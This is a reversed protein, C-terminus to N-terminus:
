KSSIFRSSRAAPLLGQSLLMGTSLPNTSPAPLQHLLQDPGQGGGATFLEGANRPYPALSGNGSAPKPRPTCCRMSSVAASSSLAATGIEAPLAMTMVSMPLGPLAGTWTLEKS